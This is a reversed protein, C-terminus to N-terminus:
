VAMPPAEPAMWRDQPTIRATAHEPEKEQSSLPIFRSARWCKAKQIKVAGISLIEAERVNLSTTECDLSVLETDHGDFLMHWKPDTLRSKAWRQKLGALM